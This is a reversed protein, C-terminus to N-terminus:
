TGKQEPRYAVGTNVQSVYGLAVAKIGSPLEEMSLITCNGIWLNFSACAHQADDAIAYRLAGTKNVRITFFKLRNMNTM